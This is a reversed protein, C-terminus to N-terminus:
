LATLSGLFSNEESPAWSIADTTAMLLWAMFLSGKLIEDGRDRLTPFLMVLEVASCYSLILARAHQRYLCTQLALTLAGAHETSYGCSKWAGVPSFKSESFLLWLKFSYSPLRTSWQGCLLEASLRHNPLTIRPFSPDPLQGPGWPRVAHLLNTSLADDACLGMGLGHLACVLHEGRSRELLQWIGSPAVLVSPLLQEPGKWLGRRRALGAKGFSTIGEDLISLAGLRIKSKVRPWM